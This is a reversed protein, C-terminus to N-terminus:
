LHILSLHLRYIWQFNGPSTENILTPEGFGLSRPDVQVKTGIDDLVVFHLADFYEQQRRYVDNEDRFFSSVCTYNQRQPLLYLGRAFEVPGGSWMGLKATEDEADPAVTNSCVFAADFSDGFVVRLFENNDAPPSTALSAAMAVPEVTTPEAAAPIQKPATSAATAEVPQGAQLPWIDAKPDYVTVYGKDSWWACSKKLKSLAGRGQPLRSRDHIEGLVTGDARGYALVM